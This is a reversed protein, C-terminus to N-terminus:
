GAGDGKPPSCGTTASRSTPRCGATLTRVEGDECVVDGDGVELADGPRAVIPAREELDAPPSGIAERLGEITAQSWPAGRRARGALNRRHGM